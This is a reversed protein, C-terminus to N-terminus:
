TRRTRRWGNGMKGGVRARRLGPVAPWWPRRGGQQETWETLPLLHLPLNASLGRNFKTILPEIRTDQLDQM